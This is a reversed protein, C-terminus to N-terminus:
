ELTTLRPVTPIWLHRSNNVMETSLQARIIVATRACLCGSERLISGKSSSHVVDRAVQPWARLPEGRRRDPVSRAAVRARFTSRALAYRAAARHLNTRRARRM